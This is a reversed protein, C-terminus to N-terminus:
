RIGEEDRAYGFGRGSFASTYLFINVSNPTISTDANYFLLSSAVNWYIGQPEPVIRCSLLNGLSWGM